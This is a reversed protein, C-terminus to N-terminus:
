CLYPCVNYHVHAMCVTVTIVFLVGCKHTSRSNKYLPNNYM